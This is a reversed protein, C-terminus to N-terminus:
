TGALQAVVPAFTTVDSPFIALYSIGHRERLAQVQEVIAPLSGMLFYPSALVQDGTMGWRPAVDEAASRPRDTLVVQWILAALELQDFREGAAERVWSVKEGVLADTDRGFDIGGGKASQAIIGVIDAEQAALALMSKGGGGVQIPPRPQQLPKPWGEMETITYHEGSFSLPENSWLGKVVTLTERLQEVRVRPPPLTIGTQSYEPLYYGAGIGFEFRGGSLVDITAAERAVLAPHRFNISYVLSGVRLSTTALAAAVLAPGVAFWPEEFHDAVLCISYGQGEIRRANETFEAASSTSASGAGFRFQHSM